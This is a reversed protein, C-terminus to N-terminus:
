LLLLAEGFGIKADAGLRDYFATPRHVVMVPAEPGGRGGLAEGDGRRVRVDVGAIGHRFVREAVFARLPHHPPPSTLGPWRDPAPGPLQRPRELTSTM